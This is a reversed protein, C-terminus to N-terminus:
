DPLKIALVLGPLLVPFGVCLLMVTKSPLGPSKVICGWVKM